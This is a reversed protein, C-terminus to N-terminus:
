RTPIFNRCADYETLAFSRVAGAFSFRRSSFSRVSGDRSGHRKPAAALDLIPDDCLDLYAM